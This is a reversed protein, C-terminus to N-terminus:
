ATGFSSVIKIFGIKYRKKSVKTKSWMADDRNEQDAGTKEEQEESWVLMRKFGSGDWSKNRAGKELLAITM